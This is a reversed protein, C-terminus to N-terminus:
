RGYIENNKSVVARYRCIMRCVSNNSMTVTNTMTRYFGKMLMYDDIIGMIKKCESKKGYKKNSYVSIQFAIVAHNEGTGSDITNEYTYNDTETVSVCPFTASASLEESVILIDKYDAQLTDSLGEILENEIDILYFM